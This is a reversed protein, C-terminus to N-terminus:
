IRIETRDLGLECNGLIPSFRNRVKLYSTECLIKHAEPESVPWTPSMIDVEVLIHSLECIKLIQKFFSHHGYYFLYDRNQINVPKGDITRYNICVPVVPRGTRVASQFLSRKFPLVQSGDSSTAEPFLVIDRGSELEALITDIEGEIKIRSRREVFVSGSLIAIWGLVPTDRVEVSTVYHFRRLSSLVLMDWFALHNSVFLTGSELEKFIGHENLQIRFGLRKILSAGHHSALAARRKQRTGRPERCVFMKGESLAAIALYTAIRIMIETLRVYARINM